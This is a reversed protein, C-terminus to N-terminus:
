ANGAGVAQITATTASTITVIFDRWVTTAITMTGNLTWGTNTTVTLTQTTAVNIIRLQWTIGVPNSQVASPLAAILAAVTPLTIAGGAGFTGTFALFCQAAGSIETATLTKSATAGDANYIAEQLPNIGVIANVLSIQDPMAGLDAIQPIQGPGIAPFMLGVLRALLNKRM